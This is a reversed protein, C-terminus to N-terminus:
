NHRDSTEPDYWGAAELVAQFDNLNGRAAGDLANQLKQVEDAETLRNPRAPTPKATSSHPKPLKQTSSDAPAKTPTERVPTDAGSSNKRANRQAEREAARQVRKAERIAQNRRRTALGKAAAAKRAASRAPDAHEPHETLYQDAYNPICTVMEDADRTFRFYRANRVATNLLKLAFNARPLDISGVLARSLLSMLAFQVSDQSELNIMCDPGDIRGSIRGMLRAHFYCLFQGRLAPSGCRHGTVLIHTCQKSIGFGPM